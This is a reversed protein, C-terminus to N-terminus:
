DIKPNLNLGSYAILIGLLSYVLICWKPHFYETMFAAILSGSIGGFGRVIWSFSQLKESGNEKDHRSQIVMMSDVIVDMFASSFNVLMFLTATFAINEPQFWFFIQLCVM